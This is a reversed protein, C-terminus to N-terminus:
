GVALLLFSLNMDKGFTKAHFHFFKVGNVNIKLKISSFYLSFYALSLYSLFISVLTFNSNYGHENGINKWAVSVFEKLLYILM